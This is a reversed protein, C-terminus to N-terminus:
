EMYRLYYGARPLGAPPGARGLFSLTQVLSLFDGVYTGNVWITYRGASYVGLLISVDFQQFVNICKLTTDTLSYVEVRIQGSEDPPNVQIRLQGCTNPMSGLVHLENQVPTLDTRESLDASTLIVQDQRRDADTIQPAYPNDAPKLVAAAAATPTPARAPPALCAGLLVACGLVAGWKM